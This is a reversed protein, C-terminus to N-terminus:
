LLYQYLRNLMERSREPTLRRGYGDTIRIEQGDQDSSVFLLYGPVKKLKEVDGEIALLVQDLRHPSQASQQDGLSFWRKFWGPKQQADLPMDVYFIGRSLDKDYLRFNGLRISEDVSGILRDISARSRILQDNVIKAKPEGGITQALLSDGSIQVKDLHVRLSELLAMETDTAVEEVKVQSIFIDTSQPRLGTEVSIQYYAGNVIATRIQGETLNTADVPISKQILFQIVQPWIESPRETVVLWQRQGDTKIAVVNSLNGAVIGEPKPVSFPKTELISDRSAVPYLQGLTQNNLDSPVELPEITQAVQYDDQSNRFIDSGSFFSCGVLASCMVLSLALKFM